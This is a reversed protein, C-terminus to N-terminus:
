QLSNVARIALYQNWTNYVFVWNDIDAPLSMNILQSGSFLLLWRRRIELSYFLVLHLELLEVIWVPSLMLTGLVIVNLSLYFQEVSVGWIGLYRVTMETSDIFILYAWAM